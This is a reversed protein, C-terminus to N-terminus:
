SQSIESLMIYELNMWTTMYSTPQEVSTQLLLNSNSWPLYATLLMDSVYRPYIGAFQIFCLTPNERNHLWKSCNLNWFPCYKPYHNLAHSYTLNGLKTGQWSIVPYIAWDRQGWRYISVIIAGMQCLLQCMILRM